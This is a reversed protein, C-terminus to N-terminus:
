DTVDILVNFYKVLLSFLYNQFHLREILKINTAYILHKVQRISLSSM